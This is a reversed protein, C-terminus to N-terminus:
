LSDFPSVVKQLSKNSVHTYIETTTSRSHGLIEQIYRLDTGAELLHTAYSHRLWHLSVPKNIGAKTVADKLVHALSAESYPSKKDEGEFLWCTPKYATYYDRLLNLTKDSLPAIRDKRGKAQRIILLNRKSDVDTLKIRLVEGRRLGCSYVLSLIAKHKINRLASLIQKVEEKSLVNPLLKARKPRHIGELEIKRNEVTLFFLKIANVVQNQFSASLLKTLIYENTIEALPKEKFFVLFTKAADCYTGITSASYRRSQLWNKFKQLHEIIALNQQQIKIEEPTFDLEINAVPAFVQKVLEINKTSYPYHWKKLSRSFVYGKVTKAIEILKHNFSFGIALRPFGEVMIKNLVIANM